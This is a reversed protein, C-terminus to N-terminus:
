AGEAHNAAGEGDIELTKRVVDLCEEVSFPKELIGVAGLQAADQLVEEKGIFGGGSLPMFGGGSLAIIRAEPFAERVRILFEIGDMEPMFIDTIVLDTPNGAYMRLATKGDAAEYVTHGVRELLRRLIERVSGEDDIILISAM